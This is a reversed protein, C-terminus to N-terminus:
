PGLKKIGWLSTGKCEELEEFAHIKDEPELLLGGTGLSRVKYDLTSKNGYIEESSVM